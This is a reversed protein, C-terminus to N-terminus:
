NNTILSEFSLIKKEYESVELPNELIAKKFNSYLSDTYPIKSITEDYLYEYVRTIEKVISIFIDIDKDNRYRTSKKITNDIIRYLDSIAKSYLQLKSLLENCEKRQIDSCQMIIGNICNQASDIAMNDYEIAILQYFNNYQLLYKRSDSLDQILTDIKNSKVSNGINILSDILCTDLELFSKEHYNTYNDILHKEMWNRIVSFEDIVKNLSDTVKNVKRLSDLLEDNSFTIITDNVENKQKFWNVTQSSACSTICLFFLILIKNKM